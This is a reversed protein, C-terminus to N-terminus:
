RGAGTFKERVIGIAHEVKGLLSSSTQDPSPTAGQKSPSKAESAGVSAEKAAGKAETTGAGADKVPGKAEDVKQDTM